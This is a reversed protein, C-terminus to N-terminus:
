PAYKGRQVDVENKMDASQVVQIVFERYFSAAKKISNDAPAELVNRSQITPVGEIEAYNYKTNATTASVDTTDPQWAYLSCLVRLRYQDIKPQAAEPLQILFAPNKDSNSTATTGAKAM